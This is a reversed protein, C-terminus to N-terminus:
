FFVQLEARLNHLIREYRTNREGTYKVSSTLNDAARFDLSFSWNYSNGLQRGEAFEYPLSATSQANVRFYQFNGNLRGKGLFARNVGPRLAFYNLEVPHSGKTDTQRAGTCSLLFEWKRDPRVSITLASKLTKIDQNLLSSVIKKEARNYETTSEIFSSQSIRSRIRLSFDRVTREESRSLYQNNIFNNFQNRLRINFRENNEQFFIDQLLTLRRFLTPSGGSNGEQLTSNERHASNEYRAITQSRFLGLRSFSGSKEDIFREPRFDFTIGIKKRKVGQLINTTITRLEFDGQNDSYYEGTLTDQSYFGKGEEVQIYVLEKRPIQESSIQMDLRTGIGGNMENSQLKLDALDTTVKSNDDFFKRTRRVIHIRSTLRQDQRVEAHFTSNMARSLPDLTGQNYSKDDRRQIQGYASFRSSKAYTLRAAIDDFEFGQVSSKEEKKKESEYHLSPIFGKISWNINGKQRLWTDNQGSKISAIDEIYYDLRSVSNQLLTIQAARRSSELSEGMKLYGFSPKLVIFSKPKYESELEYLNEGSADIHDLNWKRDYEVETNRDIRHFSSDTKRVRATVAATGIATNRFNVASPLLSFELMMANGGNDDDDIASLLNNDADSRAIEANFNLKNNEDTFGLAFNALAHSEPLPLPIVPLYHGNNKGVYEFVSIRILEYDGNGEGVETFIVRYDGSDSPAYFPEGGNEIKIYAGQGEGVFEVGSKFAIAPNDGAGSLQELDSDSFAIEQPNSKDDNERIFSASYRFGDRRMGQEISIGVLNKKYQGDSYEFDVTIRSYGTILRNRTFTLMAAGYDIVYDGDDGRAMLEGDLYVRETGALVVIDREGNKGTLLYPGQTGETGNIRISHYQGESAAYTASYSAAGLHTTSTIGQLKRNYSGFTSAQSSISIDGVRSSMRPGSIDIYVNDIENITRTNGEPQLPTNRDTLVARIDYDNGLKGRIQMRLGSQLELGRNTGFSFARTLSGSKFLQASDDSPLPQQISTIPVSARSVASDQTFFLERRNFFSRNMRIPNIKGYAAIRAGEPPISDLYLRSEASNFTFSVRENTNNRASIVVSDIFVISSDLPFGATLGDATFVQVRTTKQLFPVELQDQARASTPFLACLILLM